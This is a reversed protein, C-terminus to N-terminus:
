RRGGSCLVEVVVLASGREEPDFCAITAQRVRHGHGEM